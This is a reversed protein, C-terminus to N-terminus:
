NELQLRLAAELRHLADLLGPADDLDAELRRLVAFLRAGNRQQTRRGRATAELV